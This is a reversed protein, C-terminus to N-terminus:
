SFQKVYTFRSDGPRYYDKVEAVKRFGHNQYFRRAPLYSRASSTDAILMRGKARRVAKEVEALLAGGVGRRQHKPDVFLWYLDYTRETMPTPGHCAFGVVQDSEEFILSHYDNGAPNEFEAELLEKVVGVESTTFVGSKRALALVHELDGDVVRRIRQM